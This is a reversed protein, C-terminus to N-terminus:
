AAQSRGLAERVRAVLADATFPKLLVQAADDPGSPWDSYGSMFVVPVGPQQPRLTRVAAALETGSVQPMVVDTLVVDVPGEDRLRRLAEAASGVELVSFGNEELMRRAVRRVADEDDVVLVREGRGRVRSVHAPRADHSEDSQCAPLYLTFTTGRGPSSSVAITGGAEKVIGYVTSLGLGTGHGKEKTTFFPEFIMPLIEPSIGSGTDAVSLVV